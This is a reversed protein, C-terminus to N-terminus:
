IVKICASLHWRMLRWVSLPRPTASRTGSLADRFWRQEGHRLPSATGGPNGQPPSHLRRRTGASGNCITSPCTRPAINTETTNLGRASDYPQLADAASSDRCRDGRRVCPPVWIREGRQVDSLHQDIARLSLRVLDGGELEAHGQQQERHRLARADVANSVPGLSSRPGYGGFEAWSTVARPM